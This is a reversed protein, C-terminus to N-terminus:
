LWRARMMVNRRRTIGPPWLAGWAREESHCDNQKGGPGGPGLVLRGTVGARFGALRAVVFDELRELLVRM